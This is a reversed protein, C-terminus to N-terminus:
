EIGYKKIKAILTARHLGLVEAARSRNHAAAELVHRIHAEEVFALTNNGTLDLSKSRRRKRSADPLHCPAIEAEQCLLVAREVANRLERVNGPWSHACLIRTAEASLRINPKGLAHGYETVFQLLLGPISEPRERLPPLHLPVVSLRYYLDPRFRGQKAAAALDVNTAAIIRVDVHLSQTGGVRRFCKDELVKLLKAQVELPMDGIEDLFLTGGTALEILGRKRSIAGTFAGQEHGFLESELLPEALGACNIDVFGAEARPSLEHILRALLGKGTGTEGLILVTTLNGQAVLRIQGALEEPLLASLKGAHVPELRGRLFTLEDRQRYTLIVRGVISELVELDIPKLVFHDAHTRMARVATEVDGHGTIMIVGLSPLEQKLQALVAIGDTDPLRLDLLVVDPSFERSLQIGSRGDTAQATEYGKARFFRSLYNLAAQEDDVILIRNAM